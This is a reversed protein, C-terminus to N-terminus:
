RLSEKKGLLRQVRAAAQLAAHFEGEIGLGPVVERGAFFLNKLPSQTPLGTVGFAQAMGVEYLPHAMLRSGRREAPAALMPVSEHAAGSGLFPFVEDLAARVRAALAALHDRGKDRSRAPVFAAACLVRENAANEASRGARRAPLVQVMLAPGVEPDEVGLCLVAEGMPPPLSAAKVVLNVALLQRSPRVRDLLAALREGGGPILRRLAPADTASIFARATYVDDTGEIRLAVVRGHEVELSEAIAPAGEAGLLEGRTERIRRRLIERLGENGGPLRWTGRTAAGLLRALALAPADGELYHLFRAFEALAGALPHGDLEAFPKAPEPRSGAQRLAKSFAWHQRLGSPPLPPTLSLFPNAVDFLRGAEQIAAELRGGAGPWERDLEATRAAPERPLDLRHRPLVLQLDPRCPELHRDLDTSIGVEFLVSAAAPFGKLSPVVAPAYPLLWGGDEYSGGLGDHDVHLVRYGRRALLAGAAVGGLQSGVVCVDYVRQTHPPKFKRAM